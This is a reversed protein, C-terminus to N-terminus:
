TPRTGGSARRSRRTSWRPRSSWGCRDRERARDPDDLLDRLKALADSGDADHLETVLPLHNVGGVVPDLKRMDADLLLSMVYQMGVLENCLGVTQM